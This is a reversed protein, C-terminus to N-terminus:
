FAWEGDKFIQHAKGDKDIGVISLDATGIMFDVHSVSDNIGKEHAEDETYREYDRLLNTFGAGLALHCVANEDYLTNYFLIGSQKIPSSYPVLACEGLYSAGEDLAIMERLMAEGTQANAEVVKGGEFRLSFNDILQGGYSLPMSSYVIGEAKGRMPSTFIEETPINPNFYIGSGLASEGGGAFLGDPILGVKLDTGNSATYHLERLGLSNLYDCRAIFQENHRDWEAIPDDTVRSALLIADWLMEIAKSTREGPFVKKAWAAGPVGAICWQYRNEMRARIPKVTLARKARAKAYKRQDIGALGDPDESTLYIKVPLVQAQREWRAIQWDDLTGLVEDKCYKVDYRELPQHSWEVRVRKAGLKYCEKVLMEVFEPQDLEAYIVVEQGRKINAGSKAILTAYKKLRTKNM